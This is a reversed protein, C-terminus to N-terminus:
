PVVVTDGPELLINQDLRKGETIWKYNFKVPRTRGQEVRIILIKTEDAYELLGGALAILQVVTRPGTLPYAGPVAVMGTIFVQRSNIQRVILTVTVDDFYKSAAQQIKDGLGQPTLGVAQLDGILPLTIMGDPRVTVDGTMEPDRWFLVGLVDGLGITYGLPETVDSPKATTTSTSPGTEQASAIENRGITSHLALLAVVILAFRCSQNMPMSLM